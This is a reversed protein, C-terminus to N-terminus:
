VNVVMPYKTEGTTDLDMPLELSVRAEFGDAVDFTLKRVQPLAHSKVLENIEHNSEWIFIKEGDLSHVTIEPVGPGACNLVYFSFDKSYKASNYLCEDGGMETRVNCSVCKVEDKDTSVSYVHQIAPDGESNSQYFSFHCSFHNSIDFDIDREREWVCVCKSIGLRLCCVYKSASM